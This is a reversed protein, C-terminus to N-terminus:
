WCQFIKLAPSTALVRLSNTLM